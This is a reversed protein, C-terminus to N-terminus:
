KLLELQKAIRKLTTVDINARESKGYLTLLYIHDMDMVWYYIVRIGGSKGRGKVAWRAKRIGGSGRIVDGADPHAMLFAQFQRYEDDSLYAPLLSSFLRSEVFLM